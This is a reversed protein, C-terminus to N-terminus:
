GSTVEEGSRQTGSRPVFTPAARGLGPNATRGGAGTLLAVGIWVHSGAFILTSLPGLVPVFPGALLPFAVAGITLTLAAGPPVIASRWLALGLLALGVVWLGALSASFVAAWSTVVPGDWAVVEPAHAAIVPLLFAEWYFLCAAMVLGPVALAFGVAGLRGLRDARPAYRGFLGALSSIAAIVLGAHMPVWLTTDLAADALTTQFIDPHVIVPLILLAAVIFCGGSWRDMRRSVGPDSDAM